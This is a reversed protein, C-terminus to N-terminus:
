AYAADMYNYFEEISDMLHVKQLAWFITWRKCGIVFVEKGSILAAGVEIYAGAMDPDWLLILVDAVAAGGLEAYAFTRKEDITLDELESTLVLEGDEFQHNDTWDVTVEHGRKTLNKIVERVNAYNGFRSAVYFYM